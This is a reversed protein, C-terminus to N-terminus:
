QENRSATSFFLYLAAFHCQLRIKARFGSYLIRVYAYKDLPMPGRESLAHQLSWHKSGFTQVLTGYRAVQLNWLVKCKHTAWGWGWGVGVMGPGAEGYQPPSAPSWSRIAWRSASAPLATPHLAARSWPLGLLRQCPLRSGNVESWIHINSIWPGLFSLSGDFDPNLNM